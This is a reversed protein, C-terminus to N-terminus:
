PLARKAQTYRRWLRAKTEEVTLSAKPCTRAPNRGTAKIMATSADTLDTDMDLFATEFALGAILREAKGDGEEFATLAAEAETTDLVYSACPDAALAPSAALLACATAIIKM